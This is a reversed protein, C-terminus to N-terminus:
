ILKSRELLSNMLKTKVAPSWQKNEYANIFLSDDGLVLDGQSIGGFWNEFDFNM